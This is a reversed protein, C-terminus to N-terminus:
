GLALASNCDGIAGALDGQDSKARARLTFAWARDAPVTTQDILRSCAAIVEASTPMAACLDQDPTSAAATGASFIGGLVLLIRVVPLL